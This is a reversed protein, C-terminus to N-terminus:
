YESGAGPNMLNAVARKMPDDSQTLAAIVGQRDALTRNQNLKFKGQLDAIPIEFGAIEPLMRRIWPQDADFVWPNPLAEENERVLQSLIRILDSDGLVRPTGYAHVAVYNWTPVNGPNAYWTPSVYANPGQFIVLARAGAQLHAFQPNRRALHTRLAGYPRPAPDLFFPLHSALMEGNEQTVLTAFAFSKIIGHLVEVEEERFHEPIYM